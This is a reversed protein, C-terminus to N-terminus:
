DAFPGELIELQPPTTPSNGAACGGHGLHRATFVIRGGAFLPQRHHPDWSPTVTTEAILTREDTTLDVLWFTDGGFAIGHEADFPMPTLYGNLPEINRADLDVLAATISEYSGVVLRHTDAIWVPGECAIAGAIRFRIEGTGGDFVDLRYIRVFEEAPETPALTQVALLSGDTSWHPNPNLTEVDQSWLLTGDRDLVVLSPSLGDGTTEQAVLAVKSGDSSWDIAVDPIDLPMVRADEVRVLFAADRGYGAIGTSVVVNAGDPSWHEVLPPHSVPPLIVHRTEDPKRTDALLLRHDSDTGLLTQGDPSITAFSGTFAALRTRSGDETDLLFWLHDSGGGCPRLSGASEQCQYVVRSADMSVGGISFAFPLAGIGGGGVEAPVVWAEAARTEPDLFFIGAKGDASITEGPAFTLHQPM